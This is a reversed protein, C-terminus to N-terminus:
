RWTALAALLDPELNGGSVVAVTRGPPLGQPRHRHAAAAVAGSPETVLRAGRLLAAATELIQEESVTVVDDVHASIHRWTLAGVEPVRLGDAVTRYTAAPDWRVRRGLAFGEALDGALEPEVAVVRVGPVLAKVAVAVGSVLGGGSVPVLVVDVHPDDEAIELGVTGQGAIVARADFPPVLTMGREAALRRATSEREAPEVLVVQAGLARTAEIKMPPTVAPMVVLAPVGHHRAAWAVAQAHNGSSHTVVGRARVPPDLCALANLAGRLKFAGTPQLSEPKLWLPRRPAHWPAALLPTRVVEGRVRQAAARVEALDVLPEDAASTSRSM